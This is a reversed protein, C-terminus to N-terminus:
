GAVEILLAGEKTIALNITVGITKLNLDLTSCECAAWTAAKRQFGNTITERHLPREILFAVSGFKDPPPGVRKNSCVLLGVIGDRDRTVHVALQRDVDVQVDGLVNPLGKM